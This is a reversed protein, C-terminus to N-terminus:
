LVDLHGILDSVSGVDLLTVSSGDTFNLRVASGIDTAYTSVLATDTIAANGGVLARSIALVDGEGGDFDRVLDRGANATFVFRDGHSGGIMDDNGAGGFLQDFGAGGNLYDTGTGGILRDNSSDGYLQDSGSGGNLTDRGNGGVLYDSGGDGQLSDNGNEGFLEDYHNGGRLTDDGNGGWLTDYNQGGYLLDNDGEGYIQDNGYGGFVTDDGLHGYVTDDGDRADMWDDGVGLRKRHGRDSGYFVDDETIGSLSAFSSILMGTWYPDGEAYDGTTVRTSVASDSLAQAAAVSSLDLEDGDVLIVAYHDGLDFGMVLSEMGAGWTVRSFDVSEHNVGFQFDYPHTIDVGNVRIHASSSYGIGTADPRSTDTYGWWLFATNVSIEFTTASISEVITDDAASEGMLYGSFTYTTM